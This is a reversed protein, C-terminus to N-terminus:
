ADPRRAWARPFDVGFAFSKLSDLAHKYNYNHVDKRRALEQYNQLASRAKHPEYRGLDAGADLVREIFSLLERAEPLSQAFGLPYNSTAHEWLRKKAEIFRNEVKKLHSIADSGQRAVGEHVEVSVETPGLSLPEVGSLDAPPIFETTRFFEWYGQQSLRKPLEAKLWGLALGQSHAVTRSDSRTLKVTTDFSLKGTDLVVESTILFLILKSREPPIFGGGPLHEFIQRPHTINIRVTAM